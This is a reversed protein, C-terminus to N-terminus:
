RRVGEIVVVIEGLKGRKLIEELIESLRGRIYEEFKKTIERALCAPRDGLIEIMAKLSKVIRHPSEYFVLTRKEERVEELAKRRALDKQPLFGEFVFKECPIGSAVLAALFAAPGPVVEVTVDQTIAERVLPFGPDSVLPTGGDTVLAINKGERADRVLSDLKSRFTHDHFSTVPVRIDYHALLKRTQRTDECAIWDVSRLVDLARLTIDKLNGIPTSVLFLKGRAEM